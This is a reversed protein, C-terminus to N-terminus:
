PDTYPALRARYAKVEAVFDVKPTFPRSLTTMLLKMSDYLAVGEKQLHAIFLAHEKYLKRFRSTPYFILSVREYRDPLAKRLRAATLKPDSDIFVLDIDSWNDADGRAVSGCLLVADIRPFAKVLTRVLNKADQVTPGRHESEAAGFTGRNRQAAASM